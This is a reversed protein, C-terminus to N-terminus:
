VLRREEEEEDDEGDENFLLLYKNHTSIPKACATGKLPDRRGSNITQVNNIKSTTTGNELMMM